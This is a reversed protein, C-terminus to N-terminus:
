KIGDTVHDLCDHWAKFDLKTDLHEGIEEILHNVFFGWHEPKINRADHQTKLHALQAALIEPKDLMSITMDLGSLVRMSHAGFEPSYINDGHVRGFLERIDGHDHLISKWLKLGFLLRHHAKGFSETWQHKVKFRELHDCDASVYAAVALLLVAVFFKM